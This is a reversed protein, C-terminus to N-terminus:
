IIEKQTLILTIQNKLNDANYGRSSLQNKIELPLYPLSYLEYINESPIHERVKNKLKLNSFYIQINETLNIWGSYTSVNIKFKM